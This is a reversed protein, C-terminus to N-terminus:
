VANYPPYAASVVGRTAALHIALQGGAVGHEVYSRRRERPLSALISGNQGCETSALGQLNGVPLGLDLGVSFM